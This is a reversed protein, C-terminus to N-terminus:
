RVGTRWLIYATTPSNKTVAFSFERCNAGKANKRDVHEGFVDEIFCPGTPLAGELGNYDTNSVSVKGKASGRWVVFGTRASPRASSLNHIQDKLGRNEKSAADMRSSLETNLVALQSASVRVKNAEETARKVEAEKDKVVKGEKVLALKYDNAQKRFQEVAAEIKTKAETDAQTTAQEIETRARTEAESRIKDAEGKMQADAEARVTKIRTKAQAEVKQNLQDTTIREGGFFAHWVPLGAGGGLLLPVLLTALWQFRQPLPGLVKSVVTPVSISPASSECGQLAGLLVSIVPAAPGGAQVPGVFQALSNLLDEHDPLAGASQVTEVRKNMESAVRAIPETPEIRRGLLSEFPELLAPHFPHVPVPVAALTSSPVPPVSQPDESKPTPFDPIGRLPEQCSWCLYVGDPNQNKCNSCITM